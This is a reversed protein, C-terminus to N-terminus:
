EIRWSIEKVASAAFFGLADGSVNSRVNAPIVDFLTGRWETEQFVGMLFQYYADSMSYKKVIITAGIRFGYFHGEEFDLLGNVEISPHTFYEFVRRGDSYVKIGIQQGFRTTDLDPPSNDPLVNLEWRNAEPFGFLHRRFELEFRDSSVTIYPPEADSVEPMKDQATYTKGEWVITLTYTKGPNGRLSDTQYVGASTENLPFTNEGDSLIVIADEVRPHPSDLDYNDSLSLYVAHRKFEDTILGDVVLQPEVPPLNIDFEEECSFFFFLSLLLCVTSPLRHVPFPPRYVTSPPTGPILSPLIKAFYKNMIMKM